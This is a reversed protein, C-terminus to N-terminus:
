NIFSCPPHAPTKKGANDATHWVDPPLRSLAAKGGYAPQDAYGTVRLAAM